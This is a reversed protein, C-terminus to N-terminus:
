TLNVNFTKLAIKVVGQSHQLQSIKVRNLKVTTM